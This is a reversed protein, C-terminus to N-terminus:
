PAKTPKYEHERKRLVEAKIIKDPSIGAKADSRNLSSALEIGQTVRGFVTHKGNLHATPVFTLFFQSGGTDQGAHAMSLSGRFHKRHEPKYCECFINYGPGGTGDGKPCGGQAMFAPLVRHFTLGDYFGKEVLSIFNGASQPAENEFLEIVIDGKSTTFKVRPLDDAKAESARIKSEQEWLKTYEDLLSNFKVGENKLEGAAEAKKFESQARTFDNLCFAAVGALNHVQKVPCNNDALAQLLVNAQEYQDAAISDAAMKVLFRTLEVDENPAEAYAASATQRILPLMKRGQALLEQYKERVKASAEPSDATQFAVRQKRLNLLLTKWEGFVKEWKKQAKGAPPAQEAAAPKPEAPPAKEAQPEATQTAPAPAKADTADAPTEQAIAQNAGVLFSMLLCHSFILRQM